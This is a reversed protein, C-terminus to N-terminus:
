RPAVPRYRKPALGGSGPQAENAHPRKSSERPESRGSPISHGMKAPELPADEGPHSPFPGGLSADGGAPEGENAPDEWPIPSTSGYAGEEEEEEDEEEEDEEEKSGQRRKGRDLQARVKRQAKEKKDDKKKKQWEAVARNAERIAADELLPAHSTRVFLGCGL